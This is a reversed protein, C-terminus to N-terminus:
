DVRLQGSWDINLSISSPLLRKHQMLKMWPWHHHMISASSHMGFIYGMKCLFNQIICFVCKTIFWEIVNMIDHWWIWQPKGFLTLTLSNCDDFRALGQLSLIWIKEITMKLIFQKMFNKIVKIYNVYLCQNM